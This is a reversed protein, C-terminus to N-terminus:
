EHRLAVLPDMRAARLAPRLAALTATLALFGAVAVYLRPDTAQVGFVFSQLSSSIGWSIALGAGVGFAALTLADQLVSRLVMGRSAGLAMRVGISRVQQAVFFSMTGYISIAGIMFAVLGFVGM